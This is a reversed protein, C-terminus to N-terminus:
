VMAILTLCHPRLLKLNRLLGDNVLRWSGVLVVLFGTRGQQKAETLMFLCMDLFFSMVTLSVCMGSNLHRELLRIAGGKRGTNVATGDCGIALLDDININHTTLFDKVASTTNASSGSKPSIHGLYDGEPQQVLGLVYHEM